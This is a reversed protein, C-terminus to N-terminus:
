GPDSFEIARFSEVVDIDCEGFSDREAEVKAPADGPRRLLVVMFGATEAAEAEEIIDTLFLIREPPQGVQEAIRRYSSAERKGGTTTDFYGTFLPRLDGAESYGFMLKQAAISGSSYVYLDIGAAHWTKLLEVADPYMHGRLEGTEYGQKWILGQLTKLPTIKVDADMWGHLAELCDEILETIAQKRPLGAKIRVEDLLDLVDPEDINAMIFDDIAAKAFPFLTEHVFAISSTTGEIDTVIAAPRAVRAIKAADSM